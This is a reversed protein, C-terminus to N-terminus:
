HGRGGRGHGKGNQVEETENSADNGRSSRSNEVVTSGDRSKGRLREQFQQEKSRRDQNQRERRQFQQEQNMRRQNNMDRQRGQIQREQQRQNQYQRERGQVQQEQNMRRQTDRQRGQIQREQERQNQYQRERGQFQRQRGQLQREQTPPDENFQRGRGQLQREQPRPNDSQQRGREQLQREQRRSDNNQRARERIPEDRKVQQDSNFKRNGNMRESSNSGQNRRGNQAFDRGENRARLDVVDHRDVRKGTWREVDSVNFGRNVPKGDHKSWRTVSRTQDCLSANRYVPACAYRVNYDCFHRRPVFCWSQAPVAYGYTNGWSFGVSVSWGAQPPLPAWGCWADNNQWSVWAPGWTTDPVWVWGYYPDLVWRGYHYTAWGYPENSVWTWGYDSYGWYGDWYPRWDDSADYPSWCSGYPAVDVWRGYPSLEDHFYSLSVAVNPSSISGAVYVGADARQGGSVGLSLAILGILFLIPKM